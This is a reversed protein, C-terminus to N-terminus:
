QLIVGERCALPNTEQRFRSGAGRNTGVPVGEWSKRGKGESVGGAGNGLFSTGSHPDIAVVEQDRGCTRVM